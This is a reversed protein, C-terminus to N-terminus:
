QDVLPHKGTQGHEADGTLPEVSQTSHPFGFSSPRIEGEENRMRTEDNGGGAPRRMGRMMARCREASDEETGLDPETVERVRRAEEMMEHDLDTVFKRQGDKTALTEFIWRVLGSPMVELVERADYGAEVLRTWLDLVPPADRRFVPTGHHEMGMKGSAQPRDMMEPANECSECWERLRAWQAPMRWSYALLIWLMRGKVWWRPRPRALWRAAARPSRSCVQVALDLDPLRMPLGTVLGSGAMRLLERHALTLPRLRRGLVRWRQAGLYSLLCEDLKPFDPTM